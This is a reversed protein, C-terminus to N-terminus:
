KGSLGAAAGARRVFEATIEPRSVPGDGSDIVEIEAQPLRRRLRQLSEETFWETPWQMCWLREGLEEPLTGLADRATWTRLRALTSEQERYAVARDVRERIEEENLETNTASLLHRIAGRYDNAAMELLAGRVAESGALSETGEAETPNLGGGGGIAVVVAVLDPREAALTIAVHSGEGWGIAIGPGGGVQELVAAHDLTETRLDYPGQRTSRGSGRGDHTVVTHDRALDALLGELVEPEAYSHVTLSVVPGEGRREWHIEVGGERKLKPM